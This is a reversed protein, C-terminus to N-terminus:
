PSAVGSTGDRHFGITSRNLARDDSRNRRHQEAAIPKAILQQLAAVHSDYARHGHPTKRVRTRVRGGHGVPKDLAAYGAEQLVKLHKSLVSDAVGLMERLASFEVSESVTLMAMIRLRHPAHIKEDFTPTTM